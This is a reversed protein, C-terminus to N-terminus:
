KLNEKVLRYLKVMMPIYTIFFVPMCVTFVMDRHKKPMSIGIMLGLSLLCMKLMAILKWDSEKVYQNAMSILKEM